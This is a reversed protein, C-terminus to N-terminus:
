TCNWTYWEKCLNQQHYAESHDYACYYPDHFGNSVITHYCIQGDCLKNYIHVNSKLTSNSSEHLYVFLLLGKELNIYNAEANSKYFDDCNYVSSIEFAGIQTNSYNTTM